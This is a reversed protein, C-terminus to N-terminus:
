QKAERISIENELADIYRLESSGYSGYQLFNIMDKLERKLERLTMEKITKQETM